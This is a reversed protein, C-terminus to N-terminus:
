SLIAAIMAITCVLLVRVSLVLIVKKLKKDTKVAGDIKDSFLACVIAMIMFLWYIRM